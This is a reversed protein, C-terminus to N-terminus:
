FGDTALSMRNKISFGLNDLTRVCEKFFDIHSELMQGQRKLPSLDAKIFKEKEAGSLKLNYGTTYEIYKNKFHNEYLSNQKYLKNQLDSIQDVIKHRYSLMYVNLETLKHVDRLMEILEHFKKGWEERNSTFKEEIVQNKEEQEIKNM